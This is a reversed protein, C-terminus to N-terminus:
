LGCRAMLYNISDIHGDITQMLARLHAFYVPLDPQTPLPGADPPVPPDSYRGLRDSMMKELEEMRRTTAELQDMVFGAARPTGVATGCVSENLM